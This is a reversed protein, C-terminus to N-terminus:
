KVGEGLWADEVQISLPLQDLACEQVRVFSAFNALIPPKLRKLLPFAELWHTKTKEKM